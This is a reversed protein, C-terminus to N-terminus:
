FIFEIATVSIKIRKELFFFKWICQCAFIALMLRIYSLKEESDSAGGESVGHNPGLAQTPLVELKRLV